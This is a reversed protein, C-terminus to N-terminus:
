GPRISGPSSGPWFTAPRGSPRDSRSTTPPDFPDSRIRLAPGCAGRGPPLFHMRSRLSGTSPHRTTGAAMTPTMTRGKWPPTVADASVPPNGARAERTGLACVPPPPITDDTSSRWASDLLPADWSCGASRPGSWGIAPGLIGEGGEPLPPATDPHGRRRRHGETQRDRTTALPRRWAKPARGPTRDVRASGPHSTRTRWRSRRCGCSRLHRGRGCRLAAQGGDRGM